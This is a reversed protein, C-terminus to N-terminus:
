VIGIINFHNLNTVSIVGGDSVGELIDKDEM